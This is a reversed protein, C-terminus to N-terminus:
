RQFKREFGYNCCYRSSMSLYVYVCMIKIIQLSLSLLQFCLFIEVAVIANADQRGLHEAPPILPQHHGACVPALAARGPRNGRPQSCVHWTARNPKWHRRSWAWEPCSRHYTWSSKCAPRTMMMDIHFCHSKMEVEPHDSRIVILISRVHIPITLFMCQHDIWENWVPKSQQM